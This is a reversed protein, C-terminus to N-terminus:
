FSYGFSIGILIAIDSSTGIDARFLFGKRGKYRYGLEPILLDMDGNDPMLNIFLNGEFFHKGNGMIIGPKVVPNPVGPSEFFSKLFGGGAMLGISNAVPITREYIVNVALIYYGLYISNKQIDRVSNVPNVASLIYSTGPKYVYTKWNIKDYQFEAVNEKEIVTHIWHNNHKM